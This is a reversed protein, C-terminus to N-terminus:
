GQRAQWGQDGPARGDAAAPGPGTRSGAPAGAAGPVPALPCAVDLVEAVRALPMGAARPLAIRRAREVQDPGYRRFGTRPDVHAPSLLGRDGYLRLARPSLRTRAAM